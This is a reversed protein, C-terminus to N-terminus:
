ALPLMGGTGILTAGVVASAGLLAALGLLLGGLLGPAPGPLPGPGVGDSPVGPPAPLEASTALAGVPAPEVAV